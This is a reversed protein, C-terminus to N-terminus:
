HIAIRIDYVKDKENFFFVLETADSQINIEECQLGKEICYHFRSPSYGETDPPGLLELIVNKHINVWNNKKLIILKYIKGRIEKCALKDSKWNIQNEISILDSTNIKNDNNVKNKCALHLSIIILLLNICIKEM